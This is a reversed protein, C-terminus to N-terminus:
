FFFILGSVVGRPERQLARTIGLCLLCLFHDPSKGCDARQQMLPTCSSRSCPPPNQDKLNLNLHGKQLGHFWVMVGCAAYQEAGQTQLAGRGRQGRGLLHLAQRM